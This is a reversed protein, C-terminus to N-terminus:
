GRVPENSPDNVFKPPKEKGNHNAISNVTSNLAKTNQSNVNPAVKKPRNFSSPLKVKSGETPM